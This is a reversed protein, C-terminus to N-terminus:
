KLLREVSERLATEFRVNQESSGVTVRLCDTLGPANSFDRICIDHVDLLRQWVEAARATRFLVYNAQSPWVEVGPTDWLAEYLWERQAVIDAITQDFEGRADMVLEGALQTFANLSYPMRVRTLVEIVQPSALVYGLRLGALSYAKSFTRLIVMNPLDALHALMSQGCFEFYAEDVVFLTDSAKVLELLETEGTLTGSPNNPNDLFCIDIDGQQLRAKAAAVDIMYTDTCRPLSVVDTELTHAYIQYMSFTPTFQLMKRKKDGSKGSSGSSQGGWALMIDLLLEDGGNGLLVCDASVKNAAAVKKRLDRALPDPYRNFPFDVIAEQLEDRVTKPLSFPSENAALILKNAPMTGSYPKLDTLAQRPSRLGQMDFVDTM